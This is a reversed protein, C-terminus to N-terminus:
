GEKKQLTANKWEITETVIRKWRNNSELTDSVTSQIHGEMTLVMQCPEGETTFFTVRLMYMSYSEEWWMKLQACVNQHNEAEVTYNREYTFNPNSWLKEIGVNIINGLVGSAPKLDVKANEVPKTYHQDSYSTTTVIQYKTKAFCNRMMEAASTVTLMAQQQDRNSQVTKSATVATTVIVVSVMTGVLLLLLAMLMSAGRTNYLKRKMADM